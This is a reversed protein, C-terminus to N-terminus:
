LNYEKISQRVLMWIKGLMNHKEKSACKVCGCAGWYNDHWWNGETIVDDGTALLKVKIELHQLAKFTVVRLMHDYKLMSDWGPRLHKLNYPKGLNKAVAPTAAEFIAKFEDPDTTKGCQYAHEGTKYILHGMEVSDPSFNSFCFFEGRFEKVEM